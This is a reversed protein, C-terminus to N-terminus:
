LRLGSRGCVREQLGDVQGNGGLFQARVPGIKSDMVEGALQGRREREQRGDARLGAADFDARRHDVHALARGVFVDKVTVPGCVFAADLISVPAAVFLNKAAETEYQLWPAEDTGDDHERNTTLGELHGDVLPGMIFTLNAWRVREFVADSNIDPLAALKALLDEAGQAGGLSAMIMSVLAAEFDVPTGIGLYQQSGLTMQARHDGQEVARKLWEVSEREKAPDKTSRLLIAHQTQAWPDGGDAAKKLWWHATSQDQPVGDGNQLCIALDRQAAPDGDDARRYLTEPDRSNSDPKSM